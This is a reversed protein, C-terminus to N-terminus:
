ADNMFERYMFLHDPPLADYIENMLVNFEQLAPPNARLRFIHRLERANATLALSTTYCEPLLYKLVDNSYESDDVCDRLSNVYSEADARIDAGLNSIFAVCKRFREDANKGLTYRTSEVSMSIHRHRSLEQLLARSINEIKFSYVIHELVSDHGLEIIKKLFETVRTEGEWRKHASGTCIRGAHVAIYLPTSYMCGVRMDSSNLCSASSKTM